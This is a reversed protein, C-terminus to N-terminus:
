REQSAQNKMRGKDTELLGIEDEVDPLVTPRKLRGLALSM